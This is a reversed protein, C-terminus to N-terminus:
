RGTGPEMEHARADDQDREAGAQAQCGQRRHEKVERELAGHDECGDDDQYRARGAEQDHEPRPHDPLGYPATSALDTKETVSM